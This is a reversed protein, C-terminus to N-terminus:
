IKRNIARAYSLGGNQGQINVGVNWDKDVLKNVAQTLKGIQIAQTAQIANDNNKQSTKSANLANVLNAIVRGLGSGNRKASSSSLGGGPKSVKVGGKPIDIGAAIHAPIITGSSPARWTGWAPTNIQSLKGSNSLFMEKGFENVTYAGGGQVPGGAFRGSSTPIRIRSAASAAANLKGILTSTVSVSDRIDLYMADTQTAARNAETAVNATNTTLISSNSVSENFATALTEGSTAADSTSQEVGNLNESITSTATAATTAATNINDFGTKILDTSEAAKAASDSIGTTQTLLEGFVGAAGSANASLNGVSTAAALANTSAGALSTDLSGMPTVAATAASGIGAFNQDITNSSQLLNASATGLAGFPSVAEQAKGGLAATAQTANDLSFQIADGETRVEALATKAQVTNANVTLPVNVPASLSTLETKAVTTDPPNVVPTIVVQTNGLESLKAKAEEVSVPAVTPNFRIPTAALAVAEAKTPETPLPAVSSKLQVPTTALAAAQARTAETPLPAVTSKLQVQTNGLRSLEANVQTPDPTQLSTKLQLNRAELDRGLQNIAEPNPSDYAVQIVRKREELERLQNEVAQLEGPESAVGFQIQRKREELRKLESEVEVTELKVPVNIGAKALEQLVMPDPKDYEVQIIRKQQELKSIESNIKELEGPESVVGFQIMRKREELELLKREVDVANAGFEITYLQDARAVARDLEAENKIRYQFLIEPEGIERVINTIEQGVNSDIRVPVDIGQERLVDLGRTGESEDLPGLRTDITVDSRRLDDLQGKVLSDDVSKLVPEIEVVTEGVRDIAAQAESTDPTTVVLSIEPSPTGLQELKRDADTTDLVTKIEITTGEPGTLSDGGEVPGVKVPIVIPDGELGKRTEDIGSLSPDLISSPIQVDGNEVEQVKAQVDRDDPADLGTEIRVKEGNLREIEAETPATDLPKISSAIDVTEGELNSIKSYAEDTDLAELSTQVEVKRQGLDSIRQEVERDDPAGFSLSIVGEREELNTVAQEAETTDAGVNIDRDRFAEDLTSALEAENEIRYTATSEIPRALRSLTAEVESENEVKPQISAPISIDGKLADLEQNLQSADLSGLSTDIELGTQDFADLDARLSSDDLQGLTLPIVPSAGELDQLVGEAESTDPVEVVPTIAPVLNGLGELRGEVETTDLEGIVPTIKLSGGDLNTLGDAGQVDGVNVPIEIPTGENDERIQDISSTDPNEISSSIQVKSDQLEDIKDSVADTDPPNIGSQIEVDVGELEGVKELVNETGPVKFEAGIEVNENNLEEVTSTVATPDLPAINSIIEVQEAEVGDITAYTETTDPKELSTEIRLGGKQLEDLEKQAESTEPPKVSSDIELNQNEFRRTEEKVEDTNPTFKITRERSLERLQRELDNENPPIFEIPVKVPAPAAGNANVGVGAEIAKADLKAKDAEQKLGLTKRTEANLRGQAAQADEISKIEGGVSTLIEKRLALEAELETIKGKDPLIKKKEENLLGQTQLLAIKAESELRKASAKAKELELAAIRQQLALSAAEAAQIKPLADLEAQIARRKLELKENALGKLKLEANYIEEASAGSKKMYEIQDTLAKEQVTLRAEDVSLLAQQLSVQAELNAKQADTIDLQAQLNAKNIEYAVEVQVQYRDKELFELEYKLFELKSSAADLKAPDLELVINSKLTEIKSKIGDLTAKTKDVTTIPIEIGKGVASRKLDEVAQKKRELAKVNENYGALLRKNEADITGNGAKAAAELEARKQKTTQLALQIADEADSVYQAVKLAGKGSKDQEKNYSAVAKEAKNFSASAEKEMKKFEETAKRVLPPFGALQKALEGGFNNVVKLKSLRDEFDTASDGAADIAAIAKDSREKIGEMGANFSKISADSGSFAGNLALVGVVLGAIAAAIWFVPSTVLAFIFAGAAQAAGVMAVRAAAVAGSFTLTPATAAGAAVGAAGVGAAGAAGAPGLGAAAGKAGEVAATFPVFAPLGAQAAGAVKAVGGAGEVSALYLAMTGKTYAKTAEGAAAFGPIALQTATGLGTIAKGTATLGPIALQTSQAVSQAAPALTGLAQAGATAEKAISDLGTIKVKGGAGILSAAATKAAAAAGQLAATVGGTSAVLQYNSAILKKTAADLGIFSAINGTIAAAIGKIGGGSAAASATLAALGRVVTGVLTAGLQVLAVVLKATILTALATVVVRVGGIGATIKETFNDITNIVIGVAEVISLFTLAIKGIVDIVGGAQSVVQGLFEGFAKLATSSSIATGFDVVAAQVRLLAVLFPELSGALREFSLQNLTELQTRVQTITVTGKGLAAVASAGSDGLKGFLLSSKSLLPLIEILRDSTIEGAKVMEGLQAVTVGIASALDVRFAPDAESIQQTLEEAMLKGKGFAQIVGNMVRRSQDASLGFASFRSSLSETIASVDGISGGSALIVPSLQQFADRVTQIGVGLGTAIRESEQFALSTESASAGIAKFALEFQQIKALSTFLQNFSATVQGILISASQLGQTVAVLGNSFNSLGQLNLGAKAQAWFGNASAVSLQRSLDQVKVNQAAWDANVTRVRQGLRGVSEDYRKIEDRAQTAERIQGKLSTASGFQLRKSKEGLDVIKQGLNDIDREVLRIGKTTSEGDWFTEVVLQKTVTIGLAKNLDAAAGEAGSLAADFAAAVGATNAVVGLQIDGKGAM